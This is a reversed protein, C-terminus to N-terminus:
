LFNVLSLQQIRSTLTYSAELLAKLSTVRTSAEYADVGQLDNLHLEFIKKQSELSENANKM